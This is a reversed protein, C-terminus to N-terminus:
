VSMIHMYKHIYIYIYIYIYLINFYTFARNRKQILDVITIQNLVSKSINAYKLEIILYLLSLFFLPPNVCMFSQCIKYYCNDLVHM